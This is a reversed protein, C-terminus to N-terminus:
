EDYFATVASAKHGNASRKCYLRLWGCRLPGKGGVPNPNPKPQHRLPAHTGTGMSHAAASADRWEACRDPGSPHAAPVGGGGKRLLAGLRGKTAVKRGSAPSGSDYL